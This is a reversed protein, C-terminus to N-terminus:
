PVPAMVEVSTAEINDLSWRARMEQCVKVKFHEIAINCTGNASPQLHLDLGHIIPTICSLSANHEYQMFTTAVQFPKLVAVLEEALSWQESKLDLYHDSRKTVTEDALVASIPWAM